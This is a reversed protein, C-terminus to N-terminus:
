TASMGCVRGDPGPRLKSLGEVTETRSRSTWSSATGGPPVCVDKLRELREPRLLVRGDDGVQMLTRDSFATCPLRRDADWWNAFVRIGDAGEAIYRLDDDLATADM